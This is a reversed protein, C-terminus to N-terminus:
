SVKKGTKRSRETSREVAWARLFADATEAELNPPGAYGAKRVFINRYVLPGLLLALGVEHDLEKRLLGESEGRRLLTSMAERVPAVVQSRWVIGFGENRSAYAILHPMMRERLAKREPVPQYGLQAILDARFDGSHFVPRPADHGHLYGVVELCLADKDPWHKYITAKSAGAAEAIADMSTAEIGRESFLKVAAELINKHVTVSRTRAM